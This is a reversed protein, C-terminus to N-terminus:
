YQNLNIKIKKLLSKILVFYIIYENIQLISISNFSTKTWLETKQPLYLSYWYIFFLNEIYHKFFYLVNYFNFINEYLPKDYLVEAM